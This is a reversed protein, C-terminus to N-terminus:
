CSELFEITSFPPSMAKIFLLVVSQPIYELLLIRPFSIAKLILGWFLGNPIQVEEPFIPWEMLKPNDSLTVTILLEGDIASPSAVLIALSTEPSVESSLTAFASSVESFNLSNNLPANIM